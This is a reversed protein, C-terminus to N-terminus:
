ARRKAIKAILGLCYSGLLENEISSVSTKSEKDFDVNSLISDKDFESVTQLLDFPINIKEALNIHEGLPCNVYLASNEDAWSIKDFSEAVKNVHATQRPLIMEIFREYFKTLTTTNPLAKLM